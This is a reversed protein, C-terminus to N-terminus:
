PAVGDAGLAANIDSAPEAPLTAEGRLRLGLMERLAQLEHEPLNSFEQSKDAAQRAAPGDAQGSFALHSGHRVKMRTDALYLRHAVLRLTAEVHKEIAGVLRPKGDVPQTRALDLKERKGSVEYGLIVQRLSDNENILRLQVEIRLTGLLAAQKGYYTTYRWESRHLAM